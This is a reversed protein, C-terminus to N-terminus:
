LTQPLHHQLASPCLLVNQFCPSSLAKTMLPLLTKEADLLRPYNIELGKIDGIVYWKPLGCQLGKPWHDGSLLRSLMPSVIDVAM